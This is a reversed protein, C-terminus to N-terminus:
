GKHLEDAYRENDVSRIADILKAGTVNVNKKKWKELMRRCCDEVPLLKHNETIKDLEDNTFGLQVAIGHWM